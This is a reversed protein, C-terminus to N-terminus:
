LPRQLAPRGGERVTRLPVIPRLGRLACRRQARYGEGTVVLLLRFRLPM